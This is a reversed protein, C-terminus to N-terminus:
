QKESKKWKTFPGVFYKATLEDFEKESKCIIEDHKGPIRIDCMKPPSDPGATGPHSDRWSYRAYERKSVGDYVVDSVTPPLGDVNHLRIYCVNATPDYRSTYSTFDDWGSDHFNKGDWGECM